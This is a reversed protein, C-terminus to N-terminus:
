STTHRTTYPLLADQSDLGEEDYISTQSRNNPSFWRLWGMPVGVVSRSTRKATRWSSTTAHSINGATRQMTEDVVGHVDDVVDTVDFLQKLNRVIGQPPHLPDAYDRPPFAYAHALAAIFMEVCILFEQLGAAVDDTDYTTWKDRAKILGASQAMAIGIGQWYTFFVVGKICLFKALPRIPALEAKCAQYMLVLCYLAWAQAWGNIFAIYFPLRTPSMSSADYVGALMSLTTVVTMLPRVIVYVLVGKKCHWFFEGGMPWVPWIYQVGWIHEQNQKTSFYAAVDGFEDELYAILFMYFNYIVFAEYCERIPDLYIRANIFRLTLLSDLAYIPVMGLIRIIRIQCTPRNFNELHMAIEYISVPLSLLVFITAVFFAKYHVSWDHNRFDVILVPLAALTGAAVLVYLVRLCRRMGIQM